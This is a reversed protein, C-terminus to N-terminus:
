PQPAHQIVFITNESLGPDASRSYTKNFQKFGNEATWNRILYPPTADVVVEDVHFIIFAARWILTQESVGGADSSVTLTETM